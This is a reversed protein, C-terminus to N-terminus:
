AQHDAPEFKKYCESTRSKSCNYPGCQGYVDVQLHKSLEVYFAERRGETTCHSVMWVAAKQKSKWLAKLNKRSAATTIRPVIRGYPVYVDSDSRYTMTWNFMNKTNSLNPFLTYSPSEMIFFVWKQSHFRYPPLDETNMNPVHFVIVETSALLSRDNTVLCRASCNYTIDDLKEHWSAFFNTWMMIRPLQHATSFNRSLSYHAARDGTAQVDHLGEWPPRRYQKVTYLCAYIAILVVILLTWKILRTPTNLRGTYVLCSAGYKFYSGISTDTSNSAIASQYGPAM